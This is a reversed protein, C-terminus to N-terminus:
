SLGFDYPNVNGFSSPYRGASGSTGTNTFFRATISVGYDQSNWDLALGNSLWEGTPNWYIFRYAVTRTISQTTVGCGSLNIGGLDYISDTYGGTSKSLYTRVVARVLISPLSTCGKRSGTVVITGYVTVADDTTCPSTAIDCPICEGKSFVVPFM